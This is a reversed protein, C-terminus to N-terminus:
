PPQSENAPCEAVKESPARLPNRAVDPENRRAIM